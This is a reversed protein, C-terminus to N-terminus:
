HPLLCNTPSGVTRRHLSPVPSSSCESVSSYHRAVCKRITLLSISSLLKEIDSVMPAMERQARQAASTKPQEPAQSSPEREMSSRTRTSGTRQRHDAAGRSRLRAAGQSSREAMGRHARADRQVREHSSGQERRERSQQGAHHAGSSESAPLSHQSNRVPHDLRPQPLPNVTEPAASPALGASSVPASSASTTDQEPSTANTFAPLPAHQLDPDQQAKGRQLDPMRFQLPPQPAPAARAAAKRRTAAPARDANHAASAPVAPQQAIEGDEIM